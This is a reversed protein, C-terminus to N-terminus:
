FEYRVTLGYTRPMGVWNITTGQFSNADAVLRKYATNELNRVWGSLTIAREAFSWDVGVGHLWYAEQGVSNDPMVPRGNPDPVGLGGTADFYVDDTWAGNYRFTVIGFRELDFEQSAVISVTFQPSNLLRNGSNDISQSVIIANGGSGPTRFERIQQQFFQIFQSELWGFNVIARAGTWPEITAELEAGYNEAASANITVFEPNSGFSQNNTFLQYNYYDYYFVAGRLKARDDFFALKWGFEYSDLKEPSAVIVGSFLDVTASYTGSKWGHMYSVYFGVDETPDYRIALGGTPHDWDIDIRDLAQLGTRTLDYEGEKREYNFRGGFDLTFTESLEIEVDAFANWSTTTQKFDRIAQGLLGDTGENFISTRIETLEERLFLAGVSWHVAGDLLNEGALRLEQSWQTGDDDILREFAVNPTFDFDNDTERDWSEFGTIAVLEIEDTLALEGRLAAGFRDMRTEGARNYDGAWPDQDLDVVSLGTLRNAEKAAFGPQCTGSANCAEIVRQAIKLRENTVDRDRYGLSDFGGLWEGQINPNNNPSGTAPGAPDILIPNNRTGLAQGVFSDDDVQAGHLNLHFAPDLPLDPTFSTTGRLAWNRTANMWKPLNEPVTSVDGVNPLTEGCHSWPQATPSGGTPRPVRDAVPPAGACRNRVYGDSDTFGFAVRVALLDAVIPAEVAGEVDVYDFRGYQLAAYGGLNGSPKRPFVKIAGGSANRYPGRGQPGKEVAVGEIDLMRGLQIASSNRPVDDEYVAIAGAAAASFDNLGVGRIFLTPSTTGAKVIELNPTFNSLDSIDAVHLDDLLEADFATVSKANTTLLAATDVSGTVVMEEVGAFPDDPADAGQALAAPAALLGAILGTAVARRASALGGM